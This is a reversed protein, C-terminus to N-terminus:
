NFDILETSNAICLIKSTIEFSQNKVDTKISDDEDSLIIISDEGSTLILISDDNESNISQNINSVTDYNLENKSKKSSQDDIDLKRKKNSNNTNQQQSWKSWVDQFDKELEEREMRFNTEFAHLQKSQYRLLIKKEKEYREALLEREVNQCAEIQERQANFLYEQSNSLMKDLSFLFKFIIKKKIQTISYNKLM